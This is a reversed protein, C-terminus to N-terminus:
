EKNNLEELTKEVQSLVWDLKDSSMNSVVDEISAKLDKHSYMRKFLLQNEDPFQKLGKLIELRAFKELTTNM